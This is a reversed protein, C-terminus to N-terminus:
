AKNRWEDPTFTKIVVAHLTGDMIHPNLCGYILQQRKVPGLGAFVEGIALVQYHYGDTEVSVETDKLQARILECVDEAQM